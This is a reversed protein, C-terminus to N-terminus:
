RLGYTGLQGVSVVKGDAVSRCPPTGRAKIGVGNWRITTNSATQAKGFTYVLSGDVPWDLKGYDSTKITSAARTANPRADGSRRARGRAGRDDNTLQAETAKIRELRTRCSSAGARKTQALSAIASASSRAFSSKRASSTAHPEGRARESPTVLRDSDRQVQDRLQEVRKVLARDHLALM